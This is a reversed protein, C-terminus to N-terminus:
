PISALRIGYTEFIDASFDDSRNNAANYDGSDGFDTGRLIALPGAGDVETPVVTKLRDLLPAIQSGIQYQDTPAAVIDDTWQFVDGGQDFTGNPSPSESYAGVDTVDNYFWGTANPLGPNDPNNEATVLGCNATNPTPGPLACQMPADTGAPYLYYHRQKTDFYAAKYWENESPLFIKAGANRHVTFANTPIPTGGTLTYAGSETSAHGQGNNMWNAFRMSMFLNVYNVPRLARGPQASYHYSGPKGTRAIGSGEHYCQSRNMCPFYLLYPDSQAAVANLFAAYQANTVDFKGIEYVYPVAGYGTTRDSVMVRTDPANGPDGVSVWAMDVHQSSPSGALAPGAFVGALALAVTALVRARRRALLHLAV